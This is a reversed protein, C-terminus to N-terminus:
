NMVFELALLNTLFYLRLHIDYQLSFLLFSPFFLWTNWFIYPLRVIFSMIYCTCIYQTSANTNQELTLKMLCANLSIMCNRLLPCSSLHALQYTGQDTGLTMGLIISNALPVSNRPKFVLNTLEEYEIKYARPYWM